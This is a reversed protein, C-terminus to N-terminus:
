REVRVGVRIQRPPGFNDFNNFTVQHQRNALNIVKYLDVYRPGQGAVIKESLSPDTLFGDDYANGTRYYVNIVSRTNLINQIYTYINFDIGGISITKDIRLHANFVWPTTSNNIPEQPNRGRADGNNLIGGSEPGQQSIGGTAKTFGHGSNFTLLLNTGLQQLIPGGDNKDFRYDIVISGKHTQDYELPSILAPTQNIVNLAAAASNAFSNTGKADSLTYNVQALVRKTRRFSVRFELGKTTAFDGNTYVPYVNGSIGATPDTQAYSYQLQGKIDKYFGTIDFSAFDTFQQTFGIEYQITREPALGYAIANNFYFGGILQGAAQARSRYATNLGPPQIFQGYQLHFVTRDSVPFSFGLRPELYTFTKGKGLGSNFISYDTVDLAPRYPDNFTWDDMFINDYRLGANIILDQFEFKDQIYASAFRPHKAQDPGTDLTRGFEDFGYNSVTTSFRILRALLEPDRAQDPQNRMQELLGTLGGIGYNRVTWHEFSGGLKFEHKGRQATIAVSGGIYSNESKGFVSLLAGPRNFPFGYFDYLPPQITYGIYPYGKQANRISDGYALLEDKFDPDYGKGRQDLYNLNLEVATLPSPTYNLKANLFGNSNDSWSLRQLDFINTVSNGRGRTRSWSAAGALKVLVPSFDFLLTGNFSYRNDFRDTVNGSPWYLIQSDKTSGGRAGTDFVRTTDFRAGDSWYTPTGSWFSPNYDRIFRNEGVLHFKVKKSSGLPGSLGFVYNHYGYSYTDLFKKGQSSFKDTEYQFFGTYRERGTKLNQQVIGANAGGFEANYGGAQVLIEEVAEPITTIISGAGGTTTLITGGGLINKTNAGEIMYGVEDERSGRIHIRGNQVIVGPLLSFSEVTGRLPLKGYEEFKLIRIANTASKEVLPREAVITVPAIEVATTPMEFNVEQTLGATVRVDSVTVQQYGVYTARVNYFGVPLNFIIYRGDVDTVAGSSTGVISVSAGILPEKSEKDIVRGSIKGYQAFATTVGLFLAVCLQLIKRSM